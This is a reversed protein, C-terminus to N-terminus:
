KDKKKYFFADYLGKLLLGICVASFVLGFIDM